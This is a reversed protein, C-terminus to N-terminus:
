DNAEGGRIRGRPFYQRLTKMWRVLPSQYRLSDTAYSDLITEGNLNVLEAKVQFMGVKRNYESDPLDLQVHVDFTPDRLPVIREQVKRSFWPLLKLSKKVINTTARGKNLSSSSFSSNREWNERRGLLDTAGRVFGDCDTNEGRLQLIFGRATDRHRITLGFIEVCVRFIHVLLPFFFSLFFAFISGLATKKVLSSM